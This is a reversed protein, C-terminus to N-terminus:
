CNSLDRRRTDGAFRSFSVLAASRQSTVRKGEAPCTGCPLEIVNATPLRIAIAITTRTRPMAAVFAAVPARDVTPGVAEVPPAGPCLVGGTRVPAAPVGM